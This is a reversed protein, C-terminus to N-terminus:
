FTNQVQLLLSKPPFFIPADGDVTTADQVSAAGAGDAPASFMRRQAMATFLGMRQQSANQLVSGHCANGLHKANGLLIKKFM